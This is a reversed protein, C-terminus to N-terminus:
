KQNLNLKGMKMKLLFIKWMILEDFTMRNFLYQPPNTKYGKKTLKPIQYSYVFQRFIDM